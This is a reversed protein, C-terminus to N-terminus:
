KLVKPTYKDQYRARLYNMVQEYNHLFKEKILDALKREMHFLERMLDECGKQNRINPQHDNFVIYNLGKAIHSMAVPMFEKSVISGVSSSLERYADGADNRFKIMQDYVFKIVDYRFNPNLWMAFDFFLMPHMWTGGNKGRVAKVVDNKGTLKEREIITKIYEKTPSISFYDDLDKKKLVGNLHTNVDGSNQAHLNWQKLLATANFM